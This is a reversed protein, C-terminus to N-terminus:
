TLAVPALRWACALREREDASSRHSWETSEPRPSFSRSPLVQSRDDLFRADSLPLDPDLPAVAARLAEVAGEQPGSLRVAFTIGNNSRQSYPLYIDRQPGLGGIIGAEAIDQLSYRQRHRVDRAVGIVTIPPLGPTSRVLQKGVADQGPWLREAASESVIGVLPRDAADTADFDRGKIRAIGLADLGGPNVSHRFLMTFADPRDIPRGSPAVNVVWTANGLMSPGWVTASEVGPVARARELFADVLQVRTAPEQYRPGTLDMRFTLLRETKFGLPTTTLRHFSRAM